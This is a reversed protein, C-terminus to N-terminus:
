CCRPRPRPAERQRLFSAYSEKSRPLRRSDLFRQYAAEDFIERLAACVLGIVRALHERLGAQIM